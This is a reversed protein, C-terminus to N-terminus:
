GSQAGKGGGAGGGKKEGKGKGRGGGKGGGAKGGGGKGKGGKLQYEKPPATCEHRFHGPKQCNWCLAQGDDTTQNKYADTATLGFDAVGAAMAAAIAANIRLNDAKKEAATKKPTAKPKEKKPEAKSKSKAKEKPTGKPKVPPKPTTKPAANLKGKCHFAVCKKEYPDLKIAMKGNEDKEHSFQCNPKTCSGTIYRQACFSKGKSDRRAVVLKYVRAAEEKTVLGACM